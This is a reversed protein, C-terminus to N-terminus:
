CEKRKLYTKRLFIIVTNSEPSFTRIHYVIANESLNSILKTFIFFFFFFFGVEPTFQLTLIYIQVFKRCVM